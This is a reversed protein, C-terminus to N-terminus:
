VLVLPEIKPDEVVGPQILAQIDEPKYLTKRGLKYFKLKGENMWRHLTARSIDLQEMVEEATLYNKPQKKPPEKLYLHAKGRNCNFCLTWLNSPDNSGGVAVAIKHDVELRAGNEANNGCIQCRYNDRKLILFRLRKGTSKRKAVAMKNYECHAPLAGVRVLV